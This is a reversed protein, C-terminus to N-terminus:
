DDVQAISSSVSRAVRQHGIRRLVRCGGFGRHFVEHKRRWLWRSGATHGTSTRLAVLESVLSMNFAMALRWTLWWTSTNPRTNM